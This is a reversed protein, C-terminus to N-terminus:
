RHREHWSECIGEGAGVSSGATASQQEIGSLSSADFGFNCEHLSGITGWAASVTELSVGLSITLYSYCRCANSIIDILRLM